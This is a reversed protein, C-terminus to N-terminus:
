FRPWNFDAILVVASKGSAIISTIGALNYKTISFISNDGMLKYTMKVKFYVSGRLLFNKQPPPYFNLHIHPM